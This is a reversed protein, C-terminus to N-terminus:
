LKVKSHFFDWSELCCLGSTLNEGRKGSSPSCRQVAWLLHRMYGLGAAQCPSPMSRSSCQACPHQLESLLERGFTHKSLQLQSAQLEIWCCLDQWGDAGRPYRSNAWSLLVCDSGSQVTIRLFSHMLFGCCALAEQVFLIWHVEGPTWGSMTRGCCMTICLIRLGLGDWFTM